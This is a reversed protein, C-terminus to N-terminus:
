LVTVICRDASMKSLDPHENCFVVVHPIYWLLKTTSNYKPSFIMRDKLQELITYQIFEMGGRPMNFLFISKTELIAHAIDDRKGVSFVQTKEAYHTLYYRCFFSKGKGGDEDVFFEVTRDDAERQLRGHLVEQWDNLPQNVLTPQPVLQNALDVLRNGYRLYLGSFRIAIERTTPHAHGDASLEVVWACFDAVSPQRTREVPPEGFEDWDNGKKCYDAAQLSTGRAAELHCRHGLVGRVTNFRKRSSFCCFGQLHPTGNDGVERGYVIYTLDHSELDNSVNGINILDEETPNNLTFCWRKSQAHAM